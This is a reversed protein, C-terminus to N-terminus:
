SPTPQRDALHSLFTLMRTWFQETALADAQASGGLGAVYNTTFVPFYPPLGFYYHGAGPYYLNVAPAHDPSGRLEAMITSAAAASDWVADQGGDGMLLPVRIRTVPINGVPALPQGAFTWAAGPAASVAGNIAATPSSAVVADALHPLYAALLLVAEAGRSVGYLVVPRGHGAPQARLWGVARAFYELPISCLCQPLGPEDFYALALAPYGAMALGSAVLPDYGGGSGGLVIVAPAGPRVAASTYLLGAFGDQRVTRVSVTDLWRRQLTATARVRGGTLVALRVTFGAKPTQFGAAQDTGPAPHLSWLLGAADATHYSGSVPVTSALNVTGAPSARFVAASVWPKGQADLTRAQVTVLGDPPLGTISIHVPDIVAAVAPGAALRVPPSAPGGSGCGSGALVLAAASSVAAVRARRPRRTASPRAAARRAKLAAPDAARPAVLVGAGTPGGPQSVNLACIRAPARSERCAPGIPPRQAAAAAPRCRLFRLWARPLPAMDSALGSTAPTLPKFGPRGM